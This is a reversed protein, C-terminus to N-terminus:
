ALGRGPVVAVATGASAALERGVSASFLRAVRGLPRTGCVLLPAGERRAFETLTPVASGQLVLARMGHLGRSRGWFDLEKEANARLEAQITRRSPETLFQPGFDDVTPAVRVAVVEKDLSQAMRRAFTVAEASGPGADVAVVIPGDGISEIRLDPPAVVVPAPLTRLLRRAVRGLRVVARGELPARRGILLGAAGHLPIAATLIETPNDGHLVAVQSVVEAAGARLVIDHVARELMHALEGHHVAHVGVIPVQPTTHEHIWRAWALAGDCTGDIDIGVIWPHPSSPHPAEPM